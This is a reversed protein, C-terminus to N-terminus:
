PREKVQGGSDVVLSVDKGDRTAKVSIGEATSKIDRIQTYGASKLKAVLEQQTMAHAPTVLGITLCCLIAKSIARVRMM